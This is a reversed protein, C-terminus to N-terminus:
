PLIRGGGWRALIDDKGLVHKPSPADGTVQRLLNM